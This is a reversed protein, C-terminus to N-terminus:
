HVKTIFMLMSTKTSLPTNKKYINTSWFYKWLYLDYEINCAEFLNLHLSQIFHAALLLLLSRKNTLVRTIEISFYHWLILILNIRASSQVEFRLWHVFQWGIWILSIDIFLYEAAEVEWWVVAVHISYWNYLLFWVSDFLVLNM